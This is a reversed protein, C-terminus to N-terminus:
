IGLREAINAAERLWDHAHEKPPSWQAAWGLWQVCLHLRCYELAEIFEDASQTHENGSAIASWYALAVQRRDGENWKGATLAAVDMLSPGIASMEWDIPVIRRRNASETVIVNSPYFEGHILSIPLALLREIVEDYRNAIRELFPHRSHFRKARELWLRYFDADYNLLHCRTRITQLDINFRSHLQALWEATRQWVALNGIQYLEAGFIRELFLWYRASDSDAIFGYCAATNLGASSLISGYISIERMPNHIFAPKTVRAEPLLGDDGLNKFVIHLETSDELIVYLNEIAFSSRYLSPTRTVHRIPQGFRDELCQELMAEALRFGV